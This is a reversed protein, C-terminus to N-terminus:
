AWATHTAGTRRPPRPNFSPRSDGPRRASGPLARGEPRALISVDTGASERKIPLPLARGEPRALISVAPVHRAVRLDVTASTRASSPFTRPTKEEAGGAIIQWKERLPIQSRSAFCLPRSDKRSSNAERPIRRPSPDPFSFTGPTQEQAHFSLTLDQRSVNAFPLHVRGRM